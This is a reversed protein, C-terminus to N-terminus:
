LSQRKPPSTLMAGFGYGVGVCVESACVNCDALANAITTAPQGVLRSPDAARVCAGLLVM